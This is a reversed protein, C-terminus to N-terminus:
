LSEPNNDLDGCFHDRKKRRGRGDKYGLEYAAEKCSRMAESLEGCLHQALLSAYAESDVVFMWVFRHNEGNPMGVIVDCRVAKGEQYFNVQPYRM